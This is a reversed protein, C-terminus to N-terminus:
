GNQCCKEGNLKQTTLGNGIIFNGKIQKIGKSRALKWEILSQTKIAIKSLM